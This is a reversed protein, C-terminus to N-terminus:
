AGPMTKTLTSLQVQQGVFSISTPLITIDTGIVGQEVVTGGSTKIRYHTPTGTGTSNAAFTTALAKSGASAASAWDGALTIVVVATGNDADSCATPKTTTFVHLVAGAGLTTEWLDLCANRFATSYQVM